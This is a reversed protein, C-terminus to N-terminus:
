NSRSSAPSSSASTNTSSGTASGSSGASSGFFFGSGLGFGNGIGPAVMCGGGGSGECGYGQDRDRLPERARRHHADEVDRRVRERVAAHMEIGVDRGARGPPHDFLARRDHVDAALRRPRSRLADGDVLLQTADHRHQLPQTALHRERDVGRLGLDRAASEREAGLEHVVDRRQTAVRLQRLDDGLRTCVDAEHVHEALRSRHLLIRAVVVDHRLDPREELLPEREGDRRPDGLLADAEIGADAEALGDLVVDLQQAPEALEGRDATGHDDAHGALAEEAPQEPSGSAVTPETEALTAAAAAATADPAVITRTCSTGSVTSASSEHLDLEMPELDEAVM